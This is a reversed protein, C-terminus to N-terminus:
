GPLEQYTPTVIITGSGGSGVSIPPSLAAGYQFTGDGWVGFHTCTTNAPVSFTCDSGVSQGNDGNMTAAGWETTQRAYSGGVVENAGNHAPSATHLSVSDGLTAAYDVMAQLFDNSATRTM